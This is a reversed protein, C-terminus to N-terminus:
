VSVKSTVTVFVPCVLTVTEPVVALLESNVVDSKVRGSTKAAPCPTSTFTLKVGVASPHVPPAILNEPL